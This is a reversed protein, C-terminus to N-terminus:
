QFEKPLPGKMIDPTLIESILNSCEVYVNEIFRREDENKPYYKIADSIGLDLYYLCYAVSREIFEKEKVQDRYLNLAQLLNEYQVKSFDLARLKSLFGNAAICEYLIAEIINSTNM